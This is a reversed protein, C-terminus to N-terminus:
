GGTFKTPRKELFAAVGEVFDQSNAALGQADREWDLQRDLTHNASVQMAQKILGLATSSIPLACTQVGTM